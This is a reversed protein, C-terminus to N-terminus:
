YGEFLDSVPVRRLVSDFLAAFVRTFGEEFLPKLEHYFDSWNENIFLNLNDGLNKDGNYLNNLQITVRQPNIDLTSNTVRFHTKDKKQYGKMYFTHFCKVDDLVISGNGDGYIPLISVSGNFLYDFDARLQPSACSMTLIESEFNMDVKHCSIKNFGEVRLNTYNQFFGLLGEGPAITMEPIVLPQFSPLGIKKMPNKLQRIADPIAEALCQNFNPSNANCKKFTPPLKRSNCYCLISLSIVLHLTKMTNSAWIRAFRKTYLQNSNFIESIPVKALFNSFVSFFIKSFAEEYSTKVDAFVERWNENMVQNINDGLTKDGGFLNELKFQISKPNMELKSDVVKFHKTSKKTIEALQFTLVYDLDNLTISGPGKGYIPVLLIKGKIEYQFDLRLQPITCEMKLTKNGFSINTCTLKTFGSIKVDKYHHQTGSNTGITLSPVELPELNPLGVDKFAKTLQKVANEVSKTLCKPNNPDCKTFSSPLKATYGVTAFFVVLIVGNMNRIRIECNKGLIYCFDIVCVQRDLQTLILIM